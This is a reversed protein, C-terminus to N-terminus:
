AMRKRIHGDMEPSTALCYVCARFVAEAYEEGPVALTKPDPPTLPRAPPPCPVYALALGGGMLHYRYERAAQIEELVVDRVAEGRGLNRIAALVGDVEDWMDPGYPITIRCPGTDLGEYMRVCDGKTSSVMYAYDVDYVRWGGARDM